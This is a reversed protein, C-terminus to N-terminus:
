AQRCSSNLASQGIHNEVVALMMMPLDSVEIVM